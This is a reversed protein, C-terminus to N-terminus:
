TGATATFVQEGIQVGIEGELILSVEDENAHTHPPSGLAGPQLVHEVIAYAGATKDPALKYIADLGGLSVSGGEGPPVILDQRDDRDM